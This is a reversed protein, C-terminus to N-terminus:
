IAAYPYIFFECENDVWISGSRHTYVTTKNTRKKGGMMKLLMTVYIKVLNIQKIYKKTGFYCFLQFLFSVLVWNTYVYYTYSTITSLKLDM